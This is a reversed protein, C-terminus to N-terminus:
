TLRRTLPLARTRAFAGAVLAALLPLGVVIAGVLEWPVAVTTAQTRAILAQSGIVVYDATRLTMVWALAVGPVAGAIAGVLAGLGALYGAQGALILRGTRSPAGVAAITALDPRLDAAALATAVFTGGLVLVLAGGMLVIMVISIDRGYGGELRVSVKSSAVTLHERLLKVDQPQHRAFVTREKLGFGKAKLTAPPVLVSTVGRSAAEAVVAQTEFRTLKATSGDVDIRLSLRGDRLTSPGFVVAKGEALAAAATPDHRGQMVELLRQDGVLVGPPIHTCSACERLREAYLGATRGDSDVPEFAEALAIGPLREQVAQRTRAWEEDDAGYASIMLTGVPTSSSYSARAAADQSTIGIGATVAGATAAMVAAVASATRMRHRVADRVGLRPALPLRVALRGTLAVLSPVLAVLGLLGLVSAAFIWVEDTLPTLVTAAVGALVLVLGLLPRGARDRATDSRGALVAAPDQRGALVAPVMAAAVGSGVGLAMVGAVSWWPVELPGMSDSLLPVLALGGAVGAVGAVLAAAGGLVLGDTLVIVRLHAKSGGQAAIMALATARRRLGIAFAPGALLVTEMAVMFVAVAIGAVVRTSMTGEASLDSEATVRSLGVLGVDNLRRTDAWTAPSPTDALWGIGRGDGEDLLVGRFGVVEVVGTDFPDQVVGVVKVRRGERTVEITDGIRRKMAPTVAVEDPAAPHRGEVLPRMGRTMPDRLDVELATVHDYGRETRVEVSGEDFGILRSGPQLRAAVQAATTAAAKEPPEAGEGYPPIGDDGYQARVKAYGSTKVRLDAAGLKRVIGESLTVDATEWFTLVGTIVLVPLGIMVMILATRGRARLADRRSIRLLARM